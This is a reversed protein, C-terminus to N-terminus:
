LIGSDLASAKSKFGVLSPRPRAERRRPGLPRQIIVIIVIVVILIIIIINMAELVPSGDYWRVPAGAHPRVSVPMSAYWTRIMITIGIRVMIRIVTRIGITIMVMIMAMVMVVIVM